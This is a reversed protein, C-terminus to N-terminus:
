LNVPRFNQNKSVIKHNDIFFNTDMSKEGMYDSKFCRNAKGPRTCKSRWESECYHTTIRAQPSFSFNKIIWQDFLQSTVHKSSFFYTNRQGFVSTCTIDCQWFVIFSKQKSNENASWTMSALRDNYSYDSTMWAKSNAKWEVALECLNIL